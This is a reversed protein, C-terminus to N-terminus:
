EVKKERDERKSLYVNGEKFGKRGRTVGLV